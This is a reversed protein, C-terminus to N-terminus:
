WISWGGDIILNHGTIFRGADSALLLVAGKMDDPEGVIGLANGDRVREVFERDADAKPIHGPSICNVRVGFRGFEAALNRTLGIIAAKATQYALSSRKSMELGEYLRPDAALSGHVSSVTIISGRGRGIMQKAAANATSVTGLLHSELTSRVVDLDTSPPYQSEANAGANCVVVDLPGIRDIVSEVQEADTIDMPVARCSWGQARISAAAREIVDARRGAVYTDAGHGALAEAMALGLHTGGGTVLAARGNLDFVDQHGTM